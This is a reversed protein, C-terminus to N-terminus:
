FGFDRAYRRIFGWGPDKRVEWTLDHGPFQANTQNEQLRIDAEASIYSYYTRKGGFTEVLVARGQDARDFISTLHLDLDMLGKNYESEPLGSDLVNSLLHKVILLNPFHEQLADYDLGAVSRLFLPFGEYTTNGTQWGRHPPKKADM